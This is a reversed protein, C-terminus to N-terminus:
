YGTLRATGFTSARRALLYRCSDVSHDYEFDAIDEPDRESRPASPLAECLTKCTEFIKLKPGGDPCNEGLHRMISQIGAVRSGPGKPVPKWGCGMKNMIQGRSLSGNGPDDFASSDIYGSLTTGNERVNGYENVLLTRDRELVRKGMEEPLMGAKFLESIVYIRGQTKDFAGWLISAPAALGDDAGRWLEYSSPIAFSRCVHRERNWVSAFISGEAVSWDACLLAARQHPDPLAKLRSLYGPDNKTLDPNDSWLGKIYQRLSGGEEDPMRRIRGDEGGDVFMRKLWSHGPGGPNSTLLTLPFKGEQSKCHSSLPRSDLWPAKAAAPEEAM